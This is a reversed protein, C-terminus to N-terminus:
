VQQAVHIKKKIGKFNFFHLGLIRTTTTHTDQMYETNM